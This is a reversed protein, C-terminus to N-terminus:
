DLGAAARARAIVADIEAVVEARGAGQEPDPTPDEGLLLEVLARACWALAHEDYGGELVAVLRGDCHREASALILRALQTYGGTSVALVGLPDRAHADWGCSVLVLEPEFRDLAPVVVQEYAALIARDGAGHPLPVNVTTGRGEGLGSEEIAGTGPYYPAAHTSLYLLRPDAEFIAQTGNGHHLDWDVIAVREIEGRIGGDLAAAAAIAVNNLLCFGMARERTAHHGPPRVAAFASRVEGALVAETAALVAGAARRAAAPSRPGVYSDADVWGGGEAALREIAPLLAPDHVAGIEADSADRSPLELLRERLGAAELAGLIAELRAPREPHASSAAGGPPQHALFLEDTALAVTM